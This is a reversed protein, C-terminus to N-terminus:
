ACDIICDQTFECLLVAGGEEVAEEIALGRTTEPWLVSSVLTAPRLVFAMSNAKLSVPSILSCCGPSKRVIDASGSYNNVKGCAWVVM